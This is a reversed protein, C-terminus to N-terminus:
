QKNRLKDILLIQEIRSKVNKMKIPGNIARYVQEYTEIECKGLVSHLNYRIIDAIKHNIDEILLYPATRSYLIYPKSPSKGFDWNIRVVYENTETNKIRYYRKM